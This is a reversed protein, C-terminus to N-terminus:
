PRTEHGIMLTEQHSASGFPDYPREGASIERNLQLLRRVIEDGDRAAAKPWGYAAAVAEDLERHADRVETYAGEDVLNYLRTLGFQEQVCIAQRRAIVQRSAEAVRERHEDTLPHPWPFTEFASSPTYAFRDELTGSRRVAWAGHGFSSLIGM